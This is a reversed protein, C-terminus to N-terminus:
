LRRPSRAYQQAPTLLGASLLNQELVQLESQTAPSLPPAPLGTGCGLLSLAGKLGRIYGTEPEGIHYITSSIELVRQRLMEIQAWDRDFAAQCLDVYLAPALNAGGSVGGDAGALVAEALMEEPGVLVSFGPRRRAIQLAKHLYILDGSSDKFGIVRPDDFLEELTRLGFATKTLSPINYLYAPVPVESLILRAFRILDAQGIRQYYPPTFVVAQAGIEAALRGMRISEAVSTDSIGALLPLRGRLLRACARLMEARLSYSLAPAEGTTGLAFIAACGSLTMGDLIAELAAEDLKEAALLPTVVPPVIGRLPNPLPM